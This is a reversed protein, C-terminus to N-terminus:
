LEIDAVVVAQDYEDVLCLKANDNKVVVMYDHYGDLGPMHVDIQSEGAERTLEMLRMYGLQQLIKAAHEQKQKDTM